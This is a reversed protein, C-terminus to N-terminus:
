SMGDCEMSDGLIDVSGADEVAAADAGDEYEDCSRYGSDDDSEDSSDSIESGVSCNM